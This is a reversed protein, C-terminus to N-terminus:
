NREKGKLSLHQLSEVIATWSHRLNRKPERFKGGIEEILNEILKEEALRLPSSKKKRTRGM